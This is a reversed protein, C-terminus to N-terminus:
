KGRRALLDVLFRLLSLIVPLTLAFGALEEPAEGADMGHAKDALWHFWDLAEGPTLNRAVEALEDPLQVVAM